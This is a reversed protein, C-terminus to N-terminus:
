QVNAFGLSLRMTGQCEEQQLLTREVGKRYVEGDESQTM